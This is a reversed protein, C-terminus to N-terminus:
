NYGIIIDFIPIDNTNICEAIDFVGINDDQHKALDDNIYVVYTSPVVVQLDAVLPEHKKKSGKYKNDINNLHSIGYFEVLMLDQNDKNDIPYSQMGVFEFEKKDNLKEFNGKIKTTDCIIKM